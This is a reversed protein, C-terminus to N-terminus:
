DPYDLNELYDTNISEIEYNKKILNVIKEYPTYVYIYQDDIARITTNTQSIIYPYPEGKPNSWNKPYEKFFLFDGWDFQLIKPLELLVDELKLIKNENKQLSLILGDNAIGFIYDLIVFKFNIVKLLLNIIDFISKGPLFKPDEIVILTWKCIPNLINTM